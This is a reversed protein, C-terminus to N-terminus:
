WSQHSPQQPQLSLASIDTQANLTHASSDPTHKNKCKVHWLHCNIKISEKTINM